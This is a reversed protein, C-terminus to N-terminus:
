CEHDKDYDNNADGDYNDNDDYDCDDDVADLIINPVHILQIM